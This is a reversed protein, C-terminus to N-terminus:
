AGDHRRSMRLGDYYVGGICIAEPEAGCHVFGLSEYLKVASANPLYVTLNVRRAGHAHAHAVAKEVLARGIGGRRLRPSVFVGWLDVKHRSSPFKSPWAVAACGVLRREVFAGFAANPEPFSLQTRFGEISRSLEEDMTLGMAIPNDATVERRLASFAEADAAALQRVQFETSNSM